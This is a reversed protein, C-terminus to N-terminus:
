LYQQFRKHLRTYSKCNDWVARTLDSCENEQFTVPKGNSNELKLMQKERNGATAVNVDLKGDNYCYLNQSFGCTNLQQM